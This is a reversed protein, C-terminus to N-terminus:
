PGSMRPNSEEMGVRPHYLLRTTRGTADPGFTYHDESEAAVFETNSLPELTIAKGGIRQISLQSNELTVTLTTKPNTGYTGVYGQLVSSPVLFPNPSVQGIVLKAVRRALDAPQVPLNGLANELVIIYLGTDPVSLEYSSFGHIGGGHEISAHGAVTGLFRGFGYGTSRGDPLRVTSYIMKLLAPKVLKGVALTQQWKWLDDVTSLLGGAAYPQTMSLYPANIWDKRTRIYGPIRDPIVRETRDYCSHIMGARQFINTEVYDAYSIGSVKEIVAGLLVYGTNSYKWSSGPTFDLPKNKVLALIDKVSMDQRMLKEWEPQQTYDPIGSTHTLLEHLTIKQDGTSFEPVYTTVEDELKIKGAEVLQLIAVATFQKTLSGMRFVYKPDMPVGLELNAIGYGKRLLVEGAHAVLVVAGPADTPFSKALLADIAATSTSPTSPAGGAAAAGIISFMWIAYTTRGVVRTLNM